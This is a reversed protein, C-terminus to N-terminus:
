WVLLGQGAADTGQRLIGIFLAALAAVLFGDLRDMLGGHGPILGSTDKAGFHRKIASELLDGGQAFASLVLAVAGVLELRGVGSAYAVAIGGAVGGALGGIAGAWTKNPSVQPWLLPGGVSRGVGYACIDTMWVTAALFLFATWGFQSDRRLLAPGLFAAGAYLVGCADWIGHARRTQRAESAMVVIGVSVAGILIAVTAAGAAGRSAFAMAALLAICGPALVRPDSRAEVLRTWEWLIGGAALVCLVLFLWGGLYAAALVLPALLAASAIRLGLNRGAAGSRYGDSRSRGPRAIV